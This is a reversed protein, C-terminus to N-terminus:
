TQKEGLKPLLCSYSHISFLVILQSLEAHGLLCSLSRPHCSCGASVSGHVYFLTYLKKADTMCSRTVSLVGKPGVTLPELAPNGSEVLQSFLREVSRRCGVCPVLQSLASLVERSTVMMAINLDQQKLM